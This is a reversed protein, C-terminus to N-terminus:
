LIFRVNTSFQDPSEHETVYRRMTDLTKQGIGGIGGAIESLADSIWRRHGTYRQEELVIKLQKNVNGECQSAGM